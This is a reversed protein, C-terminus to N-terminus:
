NRRRRGRTGAAAAGSILSFLFLFMFVTLLGNKKIPKEYVKEMMEGMRTKFILDAGNFANANKMSM